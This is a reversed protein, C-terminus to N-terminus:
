KFYKRKPCFNFGVIKSMVKGTQDQGIKMRARQSLPVSLKEHRCFGGYVRGRGPIIMRERSERM